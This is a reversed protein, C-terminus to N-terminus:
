ADAPEPVLLQEGCYVYQPSISGEWVGEYLAVWQIGATGFTALREGTLATSSVLRLSERLDLLEGDELHVEIRYLMLHHGWTRESWRAFSEAFRRNPSWYSGNGFYPSEREAARYLVVHHTILM